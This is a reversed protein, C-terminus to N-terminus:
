NTLCLLGYFAAFFQRFVGYFILDLALALFLVPLCFFTFFYLAAWITFRRRAIHIGAVIPAKCFFSTM